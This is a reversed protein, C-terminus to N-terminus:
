QLTTEHSNRFNENRTNIFADFPSSNAGLLKYTNYVQKKMFNIDKGILVGGMATGHGNLFKTTSHFVFEVGYKFPQQLYPTAFTNDATVKINNAKALTCIGEIDCCRILPNSPTEIHIAKLSPTSKIIAEVKHLDWLDEIM